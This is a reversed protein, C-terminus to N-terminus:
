VDSAIFRNHCAAGDQQFGVDNVDIGRLAHVFFDTIM